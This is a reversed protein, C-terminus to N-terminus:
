PRHASTFTVAWKTTFRSRFSALAAPFHPKEISKLSQRIGDVHKNAIAEIQREIDPQIELWCSHVANEYACTTNAAAAEILGEKAFILNSHTQKFVNEFWLM